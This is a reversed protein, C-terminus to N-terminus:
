REVFRALAAPYLDHEEALVRAELTSVTDDELIPVRAQAIVEGADLEETVVHVSCGHEADGADLARQHTDLGKYKPLLSPHINLLRGEFRQIFAPGLIRMFGALAVTGAGSAEIAHALEADYAARDVGRSDKSWTVIGQKDAWALGPADPRNSAVLVVEYNDAADVLRRMNSGRGSILIAVKRPDPTM